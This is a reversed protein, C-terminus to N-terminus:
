TLVGGAKLRAGCAWEAGSVRRKGESQVELLRLAGTGCAVVPDGEMFFLIGGPETGETSEVPFTRWLKLRKGGVSVFAGSSSFLARATNHIQVSNQTWSVQAETGTIKAAYTAFESNQESFQYSGEILSQVGEIAIQSGMFALTEFLEESTTTITIPVKAQSLIPGADMERVLRFVTVGTETDGNMLARPIPAAGRWRPLLSPHINFCGYRPANLLPDRILQAFDVVFVIDPPETSVARMLADNEKLPGTQEFPLGLRAAAEGVRSACEKLGRGARTPCGTVIKEFSLGRSLHTLCSAAFAGSGMFWFRM